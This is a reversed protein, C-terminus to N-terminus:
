IRLMMLRTVTGKLLSIAQHLLAKDLRLWHRCLIELEELPRNRGGHIATTVARAQHLKQDAEAGKLSKQMPAVQGLLVVLPMLTRLNHLVLETQDAHPHPGSHHIVILLAALQPPGGQNYRALNQREALMQAIDMPDRSRERLGSHGPVNASSNTRSLRDKESSHGGTYPAGWGGITSGPNLLYPGNPPPSRPPLPPPALASSTRSFGELNQVSTSADRPMPSEYLNGGLFNATNGSQRYAFAEPSMIRSSTQRDSQTDLLSMNQGSILPAGPNSEIPMLPHSDPPVHPGQSWDGATDSPTRVVPGFSTHSVPSQAQQHPESDNNSRIGSSPSKPPPSALMQFEIKPNLKSQKKPSSGPPSGSTRIWSYEKSSVGPNITSREQRTVDLLNEGLHAPSDLPYFFMAKEDKVAGLTRRRYPRYTRRTPSNVLLVPSYDSALM